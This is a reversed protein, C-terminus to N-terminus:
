SLAPLAPRGARGAQDPGDVQEGLLVRRVVRESARGDELACFRDRFAARRQQAREDDVAGSAFLDILEDQTAAVVGPHADFIDFYVGRSARYEAWDSAFVVIPRDLVAYDFMTSSYDTILVDAALYLDEVRPHGTVDVIQASGGPAAPRGEYFYHARVLIVADPGLSDALAAVDLLGTLDTANRGRHTPTYLVVRKGPEIGLQARVKAGQDPAANVLIDNRPYGYELSEYRGPYATSWSQASQPNAAISYDWRAVLKRLEEAANGRRRSSVAALGDMGMLKLPTGHHTQVVVSGPRKVVYDPFNTNGIFYKARAITWFYAPSEEVVYDVGAPINKVRDAKVVWVGRIHPALERAKEYIAAPNCSYGASWYSSYVALQEDVPLRLQARYMAYKLARTPQRIVRRAQTKISRMQRLM